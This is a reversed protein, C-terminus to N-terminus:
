LTVNGMREASIKSNFVSPSMAKQADPGLAQFERGGERRAIAGAQASAVGPVM